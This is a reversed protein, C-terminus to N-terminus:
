ERDSGAQTRQAASALFYSQASFVPDGEQRVIPLYGGGPTLLRAAENDQLEIAFLEDIVWRRLGGTCRRM